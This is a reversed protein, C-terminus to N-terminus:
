TSLKKEVIEVMADVTKIWSYREMLAKKTQAKDEAGIDGVALLLKDQFDEKTAAIYIQEKFMEAGSGATAVVPKGCALYEYMKMPNTSTIFDDQKHPILGVDFQQIYMPSESYEKYGLFHINPLAQLEKSDEAYWVPGCLVFSKDPNKEALFKILPLDVRKQIVGIYGIVPRPLDAIDRNVLRWPQQYHKLDVGNPLWYVNPQNAFLKQLDESVTFIVQSHKKIYQYDALLRSKITSYSSHESWNDVADFITLGAKLPELYPMIPPFFSWVITTEFGLKALTRGLRRVYGQPDFHFTIDSYVWTRDSLQTTRQWLSRQIIKGNRLPTVITEKFNRATRKWTLPPYDLCIIKRFEPRKELEQWVHFNRNHVGHEWETFNSMNILVLDVPKM